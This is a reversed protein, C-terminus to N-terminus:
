ASGHTRYHWPNTPIPPQVSPYSPVTPIFRKILEGAGKAFDRMGSVFDLHEAADKLKEWKALLEKIAHAAKTRKDAASYIKILQALKADARVIGLGPVLGFTDWIVEHSDGLGAHALSADTFMAVAAGAASFAEFPLECPGCFPTVVAGVLSAGGSAFSAVASSVRFEDVHDRVWNKYRQDQYKVWTTFDAIPDSSSQPDLRCVGRAKAECVWQPKRAAAAKLAAARAYIAQCTRDCVDHAAQQEQLISTNRQDSAASGRWCANELGQANYETCYGTPDSNDIPNNLAYDWRFGALPTRPDSTGAGPDSSLFRGVKVYYWRVGMSVFGTTTDTWSGAAGQFGCPTTTGSASLLNGWTDFHETGVLGGASALAAVDGHPDTIEYYVNSGIKVYLQRGTTDYSYSRIVTSSSNLEEIVDGGVGRYVFQTVTAGNTVKTLRGLADYIYTETTSFQELQSISNWSLTNAAIDKQQNGDADSGLTAAGATQLSENNNYAQTTGANSTLNHASDFGYTAAAHTPITAQSLQNVTDYQYSATGAQADPFPNGAYYTLTEGTRNQALDYTVGSWNALVTGAAAPKFTAVVWDWNSGAPASSSTQTESLTGAAVGL